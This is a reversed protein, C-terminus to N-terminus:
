AKPAKTLLDKGVRLECLYEGVGEKMLTVTKGKVVHKLGDPTWGQMPTLIPDKGNGNKEM